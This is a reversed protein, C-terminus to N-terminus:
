CDMLVWEDSRIARAEGLVPQYETKTYSPQVYYDWFNISSGHFGFIVLLFLLIAGIYYRKEYLFSYMKKRDCVFNLGIFSFGLFVITDREISLPLTYYYKELLLTIGLCLLLMLSIKIKQNKILNNM